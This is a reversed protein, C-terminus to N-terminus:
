PTDFFRDYNNVHREFADPEIPDFADKFLSHLVLKQDFNDNKMRKWPVIYLVKPLERNGKITITELELKDDASSISAVMFMLVATAYVILKLCNAM